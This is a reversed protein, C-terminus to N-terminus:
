MGVIGGFLDCCFYIYFMGDFGGLLIVNCYDIDVLYIVVVCDRIKYLLCGVGFENVNWYVLGIWYYYWKVVCFNVVISVGQGKGCWFFVVFDKGKIYCSGYLCLFFYEVGVWMIYRDWIGSCDIFVIYWCGIWECYM